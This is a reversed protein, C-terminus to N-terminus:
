MGNRSHCSHVEEAFYVLYVKVGSGPTHQDHSRSGALPSAGTCSRSGVSSAPLRPLGTARVAVLKPGYGAHPPRHAREIHPLEFSCCASCLASRARYARDTSSSFCSRSSSFAATSSRRLPRRRGGKGHVLRP